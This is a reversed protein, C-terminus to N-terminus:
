IVTDPIAIPWRRLSLQHSQQNPSNPNQSPIKSSSYQAIHKIPNQYWLKMNPVKKSQVMTKLHYKPSLYM